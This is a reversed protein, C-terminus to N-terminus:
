PSEKRRVGTEIYILRAAPVAARIREEAADVRAAVKAVTMDGPFAVKAAVLVDEPGLHMTRLHIVGGLDSAELAARIAAVDEPTASEGLLM